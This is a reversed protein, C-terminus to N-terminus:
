LDLVDRMTYLGPKQGSLWLAARIAGRAFLSRDTAIHGFEIREGEGYFTVKHEGVVDGGRSVAFGIAGPARIGTKGHRAFAAVADLDEGRGKAAAKGLMLATGSPADVKYKHHAEFIEIDWEVGLRAATQEVQALLINLGVSMNASYLIPATKAASQLAKEDEADLGTTGIVLPTALSAALAAHALGAGPSTFDIIVDSKKFLEEPDKTVFYDFKEKKDNQISGGALELGHAIWRDTLLETIISKGMRGSCGAVGVRITKKEKTKKM